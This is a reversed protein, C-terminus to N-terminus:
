RLRRAPALGQRPATGIGARLRAAVLPGLVFCASGCLELLEEAGMLIGYGDVAREREMPGTWQVAELVGACAWMLGGALLLAAPAGTRRLHGLLALWALGGIAMVPLYLTQWDVATIDELTEHIGLAEDAAMFAFLLGLVRWPLRFRSEEWLAAVFAAVAACLLILGSVFAPVKLEADLDFAGAGGYRVQAAGLVGLAAITVALATAARLPAIRVLDRVRVLRARLNM